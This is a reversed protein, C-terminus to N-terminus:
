GALGYREQLVCMSVLLMLIQDNATRAGVDMGPLEDLLGVVKKQDFFPLAKLVPGRLMDQVYTNFTDEPSLTAPPSLFPHKQRRYVQDTIVDKVAERLVYKETMGRVKQNLPQRVITEVVKHDLFPVRGEISHAMEMRDGLMTLIYNAMATKSWLYLSQNLEDRGKLQGRVDVEDLIGYNGESVGYKEQMGADLLLRMKVQRSSFTEIWTPTYGLIRKVSEMSGIEGDPLLLGRSVTNHQDLWVLLEAIAAEDQGERNYLLMDRRFHPYGGLIEDSGEGAIVVKYGADRVARSLLYKAVGHANVCLTEAQAIADGFNDALDRQVIPIPHFEAGARAAMEKAIPGEDYAAQEFTLTFEKVAGPHHKAALGLVACSDLGGSLYVGVPVDARLRIKVAEELVARFEEAYEEDRRTAQNNEKAPYDFDWYQNVQVHKSTALLFCGPPIQFVGDYLTRGMHGGMSVSNYVGQEDWRAPVGAAM